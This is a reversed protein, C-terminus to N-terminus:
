TNLTVHHVCGFKPGVWAIAGETHLFLLMDKKEDDSYSYDEDIKANTCYGNKDRFKCTECYNM